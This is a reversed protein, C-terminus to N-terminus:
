WIRERLRQWEERWSTQGPCRRGLRRLGEVLMNKLEHGIRGEPAPPIGWGEVIDNLADAPWTAWDKVAAKLDSWNQAM